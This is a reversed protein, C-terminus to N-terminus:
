KTGSSINPANLTSAEAGSRFAAKSRFAVTRFGRKQLPERAAEASAERESKQESEHTCPLNSVVTLLIYNMIVM